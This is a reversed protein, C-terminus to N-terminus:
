QGGGQQQQYLDRLRMLDDITYEGNPGSPQVRPPGGGQQQGGGGQQGSGFGGQQGGGPGGQQGGQRGGPPGGGRQGGPPGGQGGGPQGGQGGGPGRGGRGGPVQGSPSPQQGAQGGQQAAQVQQRIYEALQDASMGGLNGAGGGLQGALGALEPPLEGGNELQTLVQQLYPALAQLTAPDLMSLLQQFDVAHPDQGTLNQFQQAAEDSLGAEQVLDVKPAPVKLFALQREVVAGEIKDLQAPDRQRLVQITIVKTDPNDRTLPQSHVRWFYGPYRPLVIQGWEGGFPGEFDQTDSAQQLQRQMEPDFRVLSVLRDALLSAKMADESFTMMKLGSSLQASLLGVASVMIALAVVVELLIASRLQQGRGNRETMGLGRLPRPIKGRTACRGIVGAPMERAGPRGRLAAAARVGAWIGRQARFSLPVRVPPCVRASM